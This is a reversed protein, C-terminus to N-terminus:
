VWRTRKSLSKGTTLTTIRSDALGNEVIEWFAQRDSGTVVAQEHAESLAVPYGQGKRCQDLVVCHMLDLLAKDNAVWQPVEVRGVEDDLRLYFFHIANQGYRERVIRSRSAFLASREGPALVFSFLEADSIGGLWGCPQVGAKCQADCDPRDSPCSAVRLANVVDTSRPASIYSGFPLRKDRNARMVRDFERLLGAELLVDTVFPPSGELGWLMLTGDLLGVGTSGAPLREALDALHHCEEVMRKAGLLNGEIPQPRGQGDPSSLTMEQEKSYVAPVSELTADPHSGYKLVVRSINLLFCRVAQHRDVEIHSGDAALVAFDPPLAQPPYKRDVEDEVGAVLWTTDSNDIKKKLEEAKGSLEHLLSIARAERQKRDDAGDKVRAIMEGIQPVVKNLDLSL